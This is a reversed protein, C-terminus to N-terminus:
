FQAAHQLNGPLETLDRSPKGAGEMHRRGAGAPLAEPAGESGGGTRVGIRQLRAPGSGALLLNERCGGGEQLNSTLSAWLM